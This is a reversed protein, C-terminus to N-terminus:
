IYDEKIFHKSLLESRNYSLSLFDLPINGECVIPVLCENDEDVIDMRHKLEEDCIFWVLRSSIALYKMYRAYKDDAPILFIHRSSDDYAIYPYLTKNLQKGVSECLELLEAQTYQEYGVEIGNM